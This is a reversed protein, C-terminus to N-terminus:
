KIAMTVIECCFERSYPVFNITANALALLRLACSFGLDFLLIILLYLHKVDKYNHFEANGKTFAIHATHNQKNDKTHGLTCVHVHIRHVMGNNLGLTKNNQIQARDVSILVNIQEATESKSPARYHEFASHMSIMNHIDHMDCIVNHIINKYVLYRETNLFPAAMAVSGNPRKIRQNTKHSHGLLQTQM